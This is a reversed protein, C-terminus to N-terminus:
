TTGTDTERIAVVAPSVKALTKKRARRPLAGTRPELAGKPPTICSYIAEFTINLPYGRRQTLSMLDGRRPLANPPPPLPVVSGSPIFCVDEKLIHSPTSEISTVSSASPFSSLSLCSFTSSTSTASTPTPIQSDLSSM